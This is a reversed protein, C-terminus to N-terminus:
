GRVGATFTFTPTSTGGIEWHLRIQGPLTYYHACFQSATTAATCINRKLASATQEGTTTASTLVQIAPVDAWTTGGDNSGQLWAHLTPNTGSVATIALIVSGSPDGAQEIPTSNTTTTQAGSVLVNFQSM